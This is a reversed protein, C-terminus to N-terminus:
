LEEGPDRERGLIANGDLDLAPEERPGDEALADLLADLKAEIRDLQDPSLSSCKCCRDAM